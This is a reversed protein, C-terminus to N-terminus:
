FKEPRSWDFFDGQIHLVLLEGEIIIINTALLLDISLQPQCSQNHWKNLTGVWSVLKFYEGINKKLCWGNLTQRM